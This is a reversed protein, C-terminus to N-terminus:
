LITACFAKRQSETTKRASTRDVANVTVIAYQLVVSTDKWQMGDQHKYTEEVIPWLSACLYHRKQCALMTVKVSCLCVIFSLHMDNSAVARNLIVAQLLV